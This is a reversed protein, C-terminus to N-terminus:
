SRRRLCRRDGRDRPLDLRRDRTPEESACATSRSRATSRRGASTSSRARAASTGSPTRSCARSTAASSRACRRCRAKPMPRPRATAAARRRRRRAAPADRRARREERARGRPDARERARARQGAVRLAHLRALADPTVLPRGQRARPQDQALLGEVLLPIDEARERLPPLTIEVVRLRYYLDERFTGKRSWRRSTATRRPSSARTSRADAQRRRRARVHAGPPRAPAQGPPRAPDRRDRRPVAHGQRRARLPRASRRGRRHVRGERPRVARERPRRPALATCNVAVFPRERRRSACTSRAQAVLEKGTGSEGAILVPARTTSVAGIQKWVERIAPSKGLIDGVQTREGRAVFEDLTTARTAARSRAAARGDRLRDIDVPKVLYEYAGLQIAKVTSQMDDRATVVVVTPPTRGDALAALVDFGRAAPCASISCCRADPRRGRARDRGPRGARDHGRLGRRRPVERAHAPDLSRRGRDPHSGRREGQPSDM